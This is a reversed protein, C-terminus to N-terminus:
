VFYNKQRQKLPRGFNRMNIITLMVTSSHIHLASAPPTGEANYNRGDTMNSSNPSHTAHLIDALLNNNSEEIRGFLLILMQRLFETDNLNYKKYKGHM